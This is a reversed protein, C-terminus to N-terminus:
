LLPAERRTLGGGPARDLLVVSKVGLDILYDRSEALGHGVHAVAHSDDGFIFGIDRERAARVLWPAPYPRAFGKRFGCTNM